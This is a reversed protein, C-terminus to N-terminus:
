QVYREIMTQYAEQAIKTAIRLGLLEEIDYFPTIMEKFLHAIEPYRESAIAIMIDDETELPKPFARSPRGAKTMERLYNSM